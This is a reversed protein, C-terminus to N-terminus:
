SRLASVLSPCTRPIVVIGSDDVLAVLRQKDQGDIGLIDRDLQRIACWPVGSRCLKNAAQAPGTVVGQFDM